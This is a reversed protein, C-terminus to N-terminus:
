EGRAIDVVNDIEQALNVDLQTLGGDSHTSLRFVLSSYRIDIDPHHGESEAIEAVRNVVAIAEPFSPLDVRRVLEAGDRQWGDLRTLAKNIADDTLLEAM